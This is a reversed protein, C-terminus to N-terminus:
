KKFRYSEKMKEQRARFSEFGRGLSEYNLENTKMTKYFEIFHEYISM